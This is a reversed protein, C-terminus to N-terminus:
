HFLFGREEEAISLLEEIVDKRNTQVHQGDTWRLRKPHRAAQFLQETQGAPTREDTRAGIILIPRPSITAINERTDFLPGYAVWNIVTALPSQLLKTDVRRAIQTKLWLRNDAAGHVLMLATIRSDRAAAAAAFPVGLSAGVIIINDQNTWDQAVLWDLILFVAPVTDLIAQRALPVMKAVPVLGKAHDPGDYPYDIGVVVQGKVDGFLEIARSGTRHGALILLVPLQADVQANRIVRFSVALGSDSVLQVSESLQGQPTLSEEVIVSAIQGHREAFWHDRPQSSDWRLWGLLLTTLLM